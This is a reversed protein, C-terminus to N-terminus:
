YNGDRSTKVHGNTDLTVSDNDMIMFSERMHQEMVAFIKNMWKEARRFLGFQKRQEFAAIPSNTRGITCHKAESKWGTCIIQLRSGPNGETSVPNLAGSASSRSKLRRRLFACSYQQLYDHVDDYIKRKLRDDIMEGSLSSRGHLSRPSAEISHIRHEKDLM